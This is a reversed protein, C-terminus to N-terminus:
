RMGKRAKVEHPTPFKIGKANSRAVIDKLKPPTLHLAPAVDAIYEKGQREREIEKQPNSSEFMIAETPCVKVCAPDGGCLNCKVVERDEFAIADYACKVVCLGCGICDDKHLEVYGKEKDWFLADTPCVKMCTKDECQICYNPFEWAGDKKVIRIATKTKSLIGFKNLSCAYSCLHCGVCKDPYVFLQKPSDGIEIAFNEM